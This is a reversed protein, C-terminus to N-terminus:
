ALTHFAAPYSVKGTILIDRVGSSLYSEWWYWILFQFDNYKGSQTLLDTTTTSIRVSRSIEIQIRLRCDGRRIWQAVPVWIWDMQLKDCALKSCPAESSPHFNRIPYNQWHNSWLGWPTRLAHLYDIPLTFINLIASASRSSPVCSRTAVMCELYRWLFKWRAGALKCINMPGPFWVTISKCNGICRNQFMLRTRNHGLWCPPWQCQSM